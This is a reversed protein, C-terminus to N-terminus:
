EQGNTDRQERRRHEALFDDTYFGVEKGLYVTVYFDDRASEASLVVREDIAEILSLIESEQLDKLIVITAFVSEFGYHLDVRGLDDSETRLLYGESNPTRYQRILELDSM